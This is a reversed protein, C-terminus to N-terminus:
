LKRLLWIFMALLVAAVISFAVWLPWLAPQKIDALAPTLDPTTAVPDNTRGNTTTLTQEQTSQQAVQTAVAHRIIQVPSNVPSVQLTGETENSLTGTPNESVISSFGPSYSITDFLEWVGRDHRLSATANSDVQQSSKCCTLALLALTIIVAVVAAKNLENATPSHM